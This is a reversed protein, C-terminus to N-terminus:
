LIVRVEATEGDRVEITGKERKEGRVTVVYEYRGPLVHRATWVSGVKSPLLAFRYENRQKTKPMPDGV